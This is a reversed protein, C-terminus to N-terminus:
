GRIQLLRIRCVSLSTYQNAFGQDHEFDVRGSRAFERAMQVIQAKERLLEKKEKREMRAAPGNRLSGLNAPKLGASQRGASMQRPWVRSGLRADQEIM